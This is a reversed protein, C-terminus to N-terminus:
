MTQNVIPDIMNVTIDFSQLDWEGNQDTVTVTVPYKGLKEPLWTILGSTSDIEMGAPGKRLGFILPDKDPDHARVAYGYPRGATARTVPKSVIEPPDNVPLVVAILIDEDTLEGDSVQVTVISIGEKNKKTECDLFDGDVFCDLTEPNSQSVVSFVLKDGDVDFAHESLNILDENLGSDEYVVVDPLNSIKPPDNVPLVNLIFTDSVKHDHDFVTVVFEEYGNGDQVLTTCDIYLNEDISCDGVGFSTAKYISYTLFEPPTENDVVHDLLYLLDENMGSDELIDVDPLNITPPTNIVYIIMSDSDNLEGDSVLIGLESFGVIDQKVLCDLYKEADIECEVVSSNTQYTISYDLEESNTDIDFTYNPLYLRDDHLGSNMLLELDPLSIEPPSNVHIVTILITEEDWLEGDTVNFLVPYIGSDYFTPTWNFLGTEPDFSFNSPLVDEANTGFILSENDPDTASLQIILTKSENVSKDGIPGLVPPDNVPLVTVRLVDTASLGLDDTVSINVDSFGFADPQATCGLYEENIECDVVSTNSESIISFFINDGEDPDSAYDTLKILNLDEQDETLNADPFESIEPPRNVHFVSIIITEEDWFLGDTVNFLVTYDGSDNFTPTWEFLGTEPDLSPLGPLVDEADTGFTLNDGDPDTANLQIILTQNEDVDRNGIPELVPPDDLPAVYIEFSDTDNFQGDSVMVTVISYGFGDPQTTCDINLEDDIICYIIEPGTQNIISYNLKDSPTEPDSAFDPLHTLNNLFGVDEVTKINPLGSIEPPDINVSFGVSSSYVGGNTDNFYVSINNFGGSANITTNPVFFVDSEWNLSYWWSDVSSGEVLSASVNLDVVDTLYTINEPSDIIVESYGIGETTIIVDDYDFHMKGNATTSQLVLYYPPDVSSLDGVQTWYTGDPRKISVNITEQTSDFDMWIHYTGTQYGWDGNIGWNGIFCNGVCWPIQPIFRFQHTHSVSGSVYYLDYEVIEDTLAMTMILSDDSPTPSYQAIHFNEENTNVFHEDPFVSLTTDTWKDTNLTPGSFDDYVFTEANTGPVLTIAFVLAALTFVRKM